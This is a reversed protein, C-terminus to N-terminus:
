WIASFWRIVSYRFLQYFAHGSSKSDGVTSPPDASWTKLADHYLPRHFGHAPLFSITFLCMKGVFKEKKYNKKYSKLAVCVSKEDAQCGGAVPPIHVGLAKFIADKSQCGQEPSDRQMTGRPAPIRLHSCIESLQQDREHGGDSDGFCSVPNELAFTGKGVIRWYTDTQGSNIRPSAPHHIKHRSMGTHKNARVRPDSRPETHSHKDPAEM